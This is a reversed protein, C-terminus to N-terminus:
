DDWATGKAFFPIALKVDSEGGYEKPILDKPMIFLFLDLPIDKTMVFKSVTDKDLFQKSLSVIKCFIWPANVFYNTQILEPFFMGTVSSMLQIFKMRQVVAMLSIGRVDPVSHFTSIERGFKESQKRLYHMVLLTDYSFWRIWERDSYANVDLTSIFKGFHGIRMIEGTEPNILDLSPYIERFRDFGEPKVNKEVLEELSDIDYEKRWDYMKTLRSFAENVDFIREGSKDKMTARLFRLLFRDGDLQTEVRAKYKSNALKEKLEKLMKGQQPTLNGEYGSKKQQFARFREFADEM